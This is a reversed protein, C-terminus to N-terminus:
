RLYIIFYIMFHYIKSTILSGLWAIKIISKISPSVNSSKKCSDLLLCRGSSTALTKNWFTRKEKEKEEEWILDSVESDIILNQTSNLVTMRNM